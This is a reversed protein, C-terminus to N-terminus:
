RGTSRTRAGIREFRARAVAAAAEIGHTARISSRGREGRERAEEQHLWIHRLIGAAADVDPDAWMSGPPLNYSGEPVSGARWPVLYSNEETMYDLNGSWGTAVVPRGWSMAEAMTLGFGEARHLSVYCDLQGILSSQAEASFRRDIFIIDERSGILRVLADRDAPMQDGDASKIVLRPGEGPAFARSFAEVLGAPNKRSALSRFDFSFGFLFGEPLGLEARGFRPVSRWAIPMPMVVVPNKTHADIVRRTHESSVWVEDVCTFAPKLGAPFTELEWHWLGIRYAGDLFGLGEASVLHLLIDPNICAVAVTDPTSDRVRSAFPVCAEIGNTNVVVTSCVIGAAEMAVLTRRAAEGLGVPTAFLGIVRAEPLHEESEEGAAQVGDVSSEEKDRGPDVASREAGSVVDRSTAKADGAAGGARGSAAQSAVIPPSAPRGRRADSAAQHESANAKVSGLLELLRARAREAAHHWQWRREVDSRANGGIRGRLESDAVVRRLLGALHETSPEPWRQGVHRPMGSGADIRVLDDVDLLLSNSDSMLELNGGFRTAIVTLGSAMAQLHRITSPEARAPAVYCDAAALLRATGTGAGVAPALLVPALRSRDLGLQALHEDLIPHEGGGDDGGVGAGGPQSAALVLSVDDDPEFARSWATFLVDWGARREFDLAALFTFGRRGRIPLPELGPRFEQVDVGPGLVHIPPTLEIDRFIRESFTDPVWIEDVAGLGALMAPHPATTAWSTRAITYDSRPVRGSCEFAPLHSVALVPHSDALQLSAVIDLFLERDDTGIREAFARDTQLPVAKLPLGLKALHKVFGRAEAGISTPTLIPGWWTVIGSPWPKGPAVRRGATTPVPHRRARTKTTASM